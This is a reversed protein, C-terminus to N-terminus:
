TLQEQKRQRIRGPLNAILNISDVIYNGYGGEFVHIKKGNMIITVPHNWGCTQKAYKVAKKYNTFIKDDADKQVVKYENKRRTTKM